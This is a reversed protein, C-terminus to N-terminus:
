EHPHDKQWKRRFGEIRETKERLADQWRAAGPGVEFVEFRGHPRPARSADFWYSGRGRCFPCAERKRPCELNTWRGARNCVPCPYGSDVRDYKPLRTPKPDAAM